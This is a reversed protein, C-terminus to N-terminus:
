RPPPAEVYCDQLARAVNTAWAVRQGDEYGRRSKGGSGSAYFSASLASDCSPASDYRRSAVGAAFSELYEPDDHMSRLTSQADALVSDLKRRIAVNVQAAKWVRYEAWTAESDAPLAEPQRRNWLESRRAETESDHVDLIERVAAEARDADKRVAGPVDFELRVRCRRIEYLTYPGDVIRVRYPVEVGLNVELGSTWGAHVNDITVLEGAPLTMPGSGSAYRGSATNETYHDTCESSVPSRLLAWRGKLHARLVDETDAARAGAAVALAVALTLVPLRLRFPPM